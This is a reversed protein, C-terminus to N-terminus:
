KKRYILIIVQCIGCCVKQTDLPNWLKIWITMSSMSSNMKTITSYNAAERTFVLCDRDDCFPVDCYEKEIIEYYEDEVYCWPGGNDDSPNRCFKRANALSKDPFKEM